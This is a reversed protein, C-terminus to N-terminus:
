PTAKPTLRTRRIVAAAFDPEDDMGELLADAPTKGQGVLRKIGALYRQEGRGEADVIGRRALGREAIEVVKCALVSLPEGRFMAGLGEIHLTGRLAAVEDHTFERTLAEAEALATDDYFIGTWLAALAPGNEASQMDAGRIELTRKLRVEPFLTNLHLQWDAFTAREGEFGTEWFSRFTQGINALYRDGRKVLFMPVDLAWDIYQEYGAGERWMAPVMGSRDPDVDLWVRGRFTRGGYPKAEVWPSNAFIATTVPALRLGVRLKRLADNESSYDFNAQVTCTRLMMDLAHGGRTPLYSRMLGYRTKPVFTLDSRRAFPHFGLGLWAIGHRDTLASVERHHDDLEIAVAHIDEHPAGSLEFQGGPELTISAGSRTLAIVPGGAKEAEPTWGHRTALDNLLTLVGPEGAYHLPRAGDEFVGVKEAEAGIRFQARPKEAQLFLDFLDSKRAIPQDQTPDQDIM